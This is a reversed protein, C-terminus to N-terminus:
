ICAWKWKMPLALSVDSGLPASRLFWAHCPTNINKHCMTDQRPQIKEEEDHQACGSTRQVWLCCTSWYVQPVVYLNAWIAPTENFWLLTLPDTKGTLYQLQLVVSVPLFQLLLQKSKHNTFSHKMDRVFHIIVNRPSTKLKLLLSLEANLIKSLYLYM